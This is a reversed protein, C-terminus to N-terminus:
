ERRGEAEAAVYNTFDKVRANSPFETSPDIRADIVTPGDLARDRLAKRLSAVDNVVFGRAGHAKALMAFDVLPGDMPLKRGYIRQLGAEVMRMRGDNMVVFIVAAREQVCTAIDTGYMQFGYDGCISVVTREPAAIKAGIAAGIGSGMSGLNVSTIFQDPGEIRLYHLAFLLHEGIDATYVTDAPLEEQLERLLDAVPLRRQGEYTRPDIYAVGNTALSWRPADSLRADLAEVAEGCDAHIPIDVRYNRGFQSPDIDVQIQCVAAQLLPSWSNTGPETLGCGLALVVDPPSSTLYEMASKHGGYGFVGVCYPASESVIGKAKPSSIVPLGLREVFRRIRSSAGRAGSGLLVLPAKAGRLAEAARDLASPESRVPESPINPPTTLPVHAIAVDLPISFFVPGRRSRKTARVAATIQYAARSPVVITEAHRTVSRVIGVVDISSPSGEQLAARGFKARPVEGGLMILPVGEGDAAALGTVANTVGPGSTVLICPLSAPRVRVHGIAMFAANTEHRVNVVRIESRNLLADYLPSIAGGPVGYVTDVGLSWLADVIADACRRGPPHQSSNAM